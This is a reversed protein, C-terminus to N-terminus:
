VHRRSRRRVTAPAPYAAALWVAMSAALISAILIEHM